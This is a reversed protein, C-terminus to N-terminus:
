LCLYALVHIRCLFRAHLLVITRPTCRVIFDSRIWDQSPLYLMMVDLTDATKTYQHVIDMVDTGLSLFPEVGDM